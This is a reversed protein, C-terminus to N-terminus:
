NEPHDNQILINEIETRNHDASNIVFDWLKIYETYEPINRLDRMKKLKEFGYKSLEFRRDFRFVHRGDMKEEPEDESELLEIKRAYAILGLQEYKRIERYFSASIEDQELDVKGQIGLHEKKMDQYVLQAVKYIRQRTPNELIDASSKQARIKQIVEMILFLFDPALIRKREACNKCINRYRRIALYALLEKFNKVPENPDGALNAVFDDIQESQEPLAEVYNRIRANLKKIDEEKKVQEENGYVVIHLNKISEESIGRLIENRLLNGGQVRMEFDPSKIRHIHIFLDKCGTADRLDRQFEPIYRRNESLVQLAERIYPHTDWYDLHSIEKLPYETTLIQKIEENNNKLYEILKADEWTTFIEFITKAREPNERLINDLLEIVKATTFADWMNQHVETILFYRSLIVTNVFKIADPMLTLEWNKIFVRDRLSNVDLEYPLGCYYNDRALYDIKDADIDGSMISKFIKSLSKYDESIETSTVEEGIALKAIVDKIFTEKQSEGMKMPGQNTSEIWEKLIRKIEPNTCIVYDTFDEHQGPSGYDKGRMKMFEKFEEPLEEKVDEWVKPYLSFLNEMAHSFPPHGIDHLLAALRLIQRHKAEMRIDPIEKIAKLIQDTAHMAGISHEFRSHVAGPFALYAFSLQKIGRLRTFAETQIIKLEVKTIGIDGWIPDRVRKEFDLGPLRPKYSKEDAMIAEMDEIYATSGVLILM